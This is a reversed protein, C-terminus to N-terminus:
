GDKELTLVWGDAALAETVAERTEADSRLLLAVTEVIDEAQPPPQEQPSKEIGLVTQRIRLMSSVPGMQGDKAAAETHREVDALFAVAQVGAAADEDADARLQELAWLRTRRVQRPAIGWEDALEREVASSWGRAQIIERVQEIRAVTQPSPGPATMPPTYCRTPVPHRAFPKTPHHPLPTRERGRTGISAGPSYGGYKSARRSCTLQISAPAVTEASDDARLTPRALAPPAM